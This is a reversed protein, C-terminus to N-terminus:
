GSTPPAVGSELQQVRFELQTTFEWLAELKKNLAFQDDRLVRVMAERDMVKSVSQELSSRAGSELSLGKGNGNSSAVVRSPREEVRDM